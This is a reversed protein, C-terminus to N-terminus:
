NHGASCIQAEWPAVRRRLSRCLKLHPSRFASVIGRMGVDSVNPKCKLVGKVKLNRRVVDNLALDSLAAAEVQRSAKVHGIHALWMM